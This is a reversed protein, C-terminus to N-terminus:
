KPAPRVLCPVPHSVNGSFDIGRTEADGNITIHWDIDGPGAKQSPRAGPAQTLKVKTGSPFPGFVQGSGSDTLTVAPDPDVRDVATLVYSGDPKQGSRPNNGASPVNKGSPKTTAACATVPPATDVARTDVSDSNSATNRDTTDSRAEARNTATFVRLPATATVTVTRQGGAAM